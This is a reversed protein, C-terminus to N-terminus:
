PAIDQLHLESHIVTVDNEISTVSSMSRLVKMLDAVTRATALPQDADPSTRPANKVGFEVWPMVTDVLGAVNIYVVSALPRDVNAAPGDLALPTKTLLDLSHRPAITFAAVSDSLGYNPAIQPKVGLEEPMTYWTVKGEAFDRSRPEPLLVAPFSPGALARIQVMADNYQKRYETLAEELRAADSVMYVLGPQLLKLEEDSPPLAAIWNKHAMRSDLICASEGEALAPLLKTRTTEDFRAIIPFINAAVSEYLAQQQPEMQPLAYQEFYGRAKGAWKALTAYSQPSPKTHAAIVALPSGGVHDLIRMKSSGDRRPQKTWNHSNFELGRDTLYWFDLAAGYDPLLQKIDAALEDIDAGIGVKTAGDLPSNALLNKSHGALLDIDEKNSYQQVSLFKKSAFAIGALRKDAQPMLPAFEPQEILLPGQGLTALHDNSKGVSLLLYGQHVGVSVAVKMGKIHDIVPLYRADITDLPLDDWPFDAGTLELTWFDSGAIAVQKMRPKLDPRFAGLLERAAALRQLQADAKARDGDAIKMGMVFEPVALRAKNKLLVDLYGQVVVTQPNVEVLGGSMMLNLMAFQSSMQADIYIDYLDSLSDDAYFFVEDSLLRLGLEALEKNDPDKVFEQYQQGPGGPAALMSRWGEEFGPLSKIRALWNSQAVLDFQEKNRLLAMYIGANAPVLKLSNDPPAANSVAPCVALTCALAALILISFFRRTAILPRLPSHM